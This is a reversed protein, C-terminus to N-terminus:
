CNFRKGAKNPKHSILYQLELASCEYDVETKVSTVLHVVVARCFVEHGHAERIVVDTLDAEM